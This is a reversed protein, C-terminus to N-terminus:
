GQGGRSERCREHVFCLLGLLEKEKSKRKVVMNRKTNVFLANRDAKVRERKEAEERAESMELQQNELEKRYEIMQKRKAEEKEDEGKLYEEALRDLEKQESLQQARESEAGQLKSRM